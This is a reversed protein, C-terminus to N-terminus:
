QLRNIITSERRLNRLYRQSLMALEQDYLRDEVEQRSPGDSASERACVVLVAVNDGADYVASAEGAKLGDIRKTVEDSLETVPSDGLDVVAAGKVQAVARELDTCASTRRVAREMAIRDGRPATVQRLAVRESAKPDQGARLDRLAVIYIGTPTRIPTSVQGPQLAQVAGQLEARLEGQTIWGIDGGAAASPAASFQRAVAGFPAGKGMEEILRNAAETADRVDSESEAPLFIESILYQTKSANASIRALTDRVQVDSIRVRSGFRGGVLRQWAMEAELQRRLTAASVGSRALEGKLGDATTNNQRALQAFANDIEKASIEIKFQKAEQLQLSEDILSRLAQSQVRQFSEQTPQIGSSILILLARQRVDFTSIVDDNVIAAVAEAQQAVAPAPGATLLAAAAAAVLVLNRKM